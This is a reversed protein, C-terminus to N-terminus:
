TRLPVVLQPSGMGQNLTPQHHSTVAAKGFSVRHGTTTTQHTTENVSSPASKRAPAVLNMEVTIPPTDDDDDNDVSITFLPAAATLLLMVAVVPGRLTKHWFGSM